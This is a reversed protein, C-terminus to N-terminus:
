RGLMETIPKGPPVFPYVKEEPSIIFEMVVPGPHLFAEELTARVQQADTVRYGKIGYAEALKVFNPNFGLPTESYREEFFLEQWQRVM